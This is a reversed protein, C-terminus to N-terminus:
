KLEPLTQQIAKMMRRKYKQEISAGVAASMKRTKLEKEKSGGTSVLQKNIWDTLNM